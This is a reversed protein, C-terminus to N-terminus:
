VTPICLKTRNAPFRRKPRKVFHITVNIVDEPTSHVSMLELLTNPFSSLTVRACFPQFHSRFCTMFAESPEQVHDCVCKERCRHLRVTVIEHSPEDLVKPFHFGKMSWLVDSKLRDSSAHPLFIGETITGESM